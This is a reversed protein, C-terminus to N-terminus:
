ELLNKYGFSIPDKSNSLPKRELNYGNRLNVGTLGTYIKLKLYNKWM